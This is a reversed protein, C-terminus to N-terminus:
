FSYHASQLLVLRDDSLDWEDSFVVVVSAKLAPRLFCGPFVKPVVTIRPLPPLHWQLLQVFDYILKKRFRVLKLHLALVSLIFIM